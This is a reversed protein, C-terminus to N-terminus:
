DSGPALVRRTGFPLSLYAPVLALALLLVLLAPRLFGGRRGGQPDRGAKFVKMGMPPSRVCPPANDVSPCETGPSIEGLEPRRSAPISTMTSCSLVADNPSSSSRTAHSPRAADQAPGIRRRPAKTNTPKTKKTAAVVAM